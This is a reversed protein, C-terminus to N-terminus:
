VTLHSTEQMHCPGTIWLKTYCVTCPYKKNCAVIRISHVLNHDGFTTSEMLKEDFLEMHCRQSAVKTDLVSEHVIKWLTQHGLSCSVTVEKTQEHVVQACVFSLVATGGPKSYGRGTGSDRKEEHLM